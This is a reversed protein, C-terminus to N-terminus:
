LVSLSYYPIAKSSSNERQSWFIENLRQPVVPEIDLDVADPCLACRIPLPSLRCLFNSRCDDCHHEHLRQTGITHRKSDILRQKSYMRHLQPSFPGKPVSLAARLIRRPNVQTFCDTTGGVPYKSCCDLANPTSRFDIQGTMRFTSPQKMRFDDGVAGAALKLSTSANRFAWNLLDSVVGTPDILEYIELRQPFLCDAARCGFSSSQGLFGGVAGTLSM